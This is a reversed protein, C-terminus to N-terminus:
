PKETSASAPDAPKPLKAELEALLKQFDERERIADFDPEKLEALDTWGAKLADALAAVAQDAFAKAEDQTVGSRADSVLGALLALSRSREVHERNGLIPHVPNYEIPPKAWLELARRLDAAAEAPQGARVRAAGRYAYSWDFWQAYYAYAYHPNAEFKQHITLAADLATLAEASRNQRSHRRGLDNYYRALEIQRGGLEFQDRNNASQGLKAELEAVKAELEAVLKKFDERDRIADFNPDVLQTLATWGAKIADALEAVSQDAFAKAEDQSVGSNADGGLGALLALSRSREVHEENGLNPLKTWLELVRRLDAAAEAPQGARVRAAGRYAYSYGLHNTYQTDTPNAAALKQRIAL